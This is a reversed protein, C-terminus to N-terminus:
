SGIPRWDQIQRFEHCIKYAQERAGNCQRRWQAGNLGVISQLLGGLEQLRQQQLITEARMTALLSAQAILKRQNIAQQELANRGQGQAQRVAGM